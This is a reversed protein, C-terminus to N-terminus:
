KLARNSGAPDLGDAVAPRARVPTWQGSTRGVLCKLSGLLAAFNVLCFSMPVSWPFVLRRGNARAFGALALAYFAAQLAFWVRFFPRQMLFASAAFLGALFYPIHWRLLKHSWLSVALGRHRLPDLLCANALLARFDKSIIRVKLRLMSEARNQPLCTYAVAEPELVNRWGLRAVHLPLAFDDGVNPDLARWLSRRMAFLSGSAMALVGHESEQRRLWTEYRLYLCENETIQTEPENVYAPRATVLGVQPDSFNEIMQSLAESDFLCDADTFVLIEGSSAAALGNQIASKGQQEPFSILGVGEAAYPRVIAETRDSSGDSGILIEVRDRPYNCALLNKLKAEIVSEENHAAVLISVTQTASGRDVAKRRGFAGLRLLVPYGIYVYLVVALCLWFIITM